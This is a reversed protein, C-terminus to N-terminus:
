GCGQLCLAFHRNESQPLHFDLRLFTYVNGNMTTFIAPNGDVTM